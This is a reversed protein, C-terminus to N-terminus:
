NGRSWELFTEVNVYSLATQRDDPVLSFYDKPRNIKGATEKDVLEYNFAYNFPLSTDMSRIYNARAAERIEQVWEVSAGFLHVDLEPYNDNIWDAVMIRSMQLGSEKLLLRPIYIVKIAGGVASQMIHDIGEISENPDHGQAVYGINVDSPIQDVFDLLFHFAQAVTKDTDALVDPLAFETPHLENILHVLDLNDTHEAEAAGNDLIVHAGIPQAALLTKYHEAYFPDKFMHPLALQYTTQMTMELLSVPPILALEM